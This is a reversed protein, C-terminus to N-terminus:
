SQAKVFDFTANQYRPMNALGDLKKLSDYIFPARISNLLFSPIAGGEDMDIVYEAEVEGNELPTFRWTNNMNRIRFCCDNPPIKDPVAIYAMYVSKSQPDLSMEQKVVYERARFPFPFPYRFSSYILQDNPKEIIKAEYCGIYDCVNPDQMMAVISGMKAKLRVTSKYKKLASGPTKMALIKVGDKDMELEWQNSGSYKWALQAAFIGAALVVVAIGLYKGIKRKPKGISDNAM